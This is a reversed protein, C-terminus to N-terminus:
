LVDKHFGEQNYPKVGNRDGDLTHIKVFITGGLSRITQVGLPYVNLSM